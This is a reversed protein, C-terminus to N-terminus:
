LLQTEILNKHKRRLKYFIFLIWAKICKHM